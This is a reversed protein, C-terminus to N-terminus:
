KVEYKSACKTLLQTAEFREAPTVFRGTAVVEAGERFTNPVSGHYHVDTDMRGDTITFKHDAGNVTVTGNKVTGTIKVIKGQFEVQKASLETPTLAFQFSTRFSTWILYSFAGGIIILGILYKGRM